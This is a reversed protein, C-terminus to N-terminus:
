LLAGVTEPIKKLVQKGILSDAMHKPINIKLLSLLTPAVHVLTGLPKVLSLDGAPPDQFGLTKGEFSNSILMFPVPSSTHEKHLKEVNHKQLKEANGHDSTICVLVDKALAAKVISGVHTDIEEISTITAKLNATHGLMDANAFNAIICDYDNKAIEKIVRQSIYQSSMEPEHEYETSESSPILVDEENKFSDKNAGNFYYTLHAYKETEAIHIQSLGADSIVKAFPAKDKENKFACKVQPTQISEAFTVLQIGDKESRSKKKLAEHFGKILQEARDTRFNFFLVGDKAKVKGVPNGARGVIVTPPIDTDFVKQNYYHNLAIDSSKFTEKSEGNIIAKISQETKDWSGDRDMAYTRGHISAIKGLGIGTLRQKIHSLMQAGQDYEVDTGDLIAHLVVRKVKHRKALELIAYMHDIYSHVGGSSVLGVLHLTSNQKRVHECLSNLTTNTFFTGDWIAKSIRVLPHHMIKGTGLAYHGAESNGPDAWPLGISEGSAKLTTVPYSKILEDIFPTKARTIANDKSDVSVGWGDLILWVLRKYKKPLTTM